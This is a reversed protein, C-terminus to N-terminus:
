EDEEPDYQWIDLGYPTTLYIINIDDGSNLWDSLHRVYAETPIDDAEPEFSAMDHIVASVIAPFHIGEWVQSEHGVLPKGNKDMQTCIVRM